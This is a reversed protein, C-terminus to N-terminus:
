NRFEISLRRKRLRENEMLLARIFIISMILNLPATYLGPFYGGAVIPFVFHAIANSLGAGLAYFWACYNGLANVIPIKSSMAVAASIWLALGAFVFTLLFEAETWTGSDSAFQESFRPGFRGLYEEGMHITQIAVALLYLNIVNRSEVPKQYTTLRWGVFALVGAGGLIIVGQYPLYSLFGAIMGVILLSIVIASIVRAKM